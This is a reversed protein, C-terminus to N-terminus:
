DNLIFGISKTLKIFTEFDQTPLAVYLVVDAISDTGPVWM